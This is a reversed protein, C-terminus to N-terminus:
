DYCSNPPAPSCNPSNLTSTGSGSYL